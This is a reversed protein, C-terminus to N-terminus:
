LCLDLTQGMKPYPSELQTMASFDLTEKLRFALIAVMLIPLPLLKQVVYPLSMIEAAVGV